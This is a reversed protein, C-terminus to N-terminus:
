AFKKYAYGAWSVLLLTLYIGAHSPEHALGGKWLLFWVPYAVVVIACAAAQGYMSASVEHEDLLGHALWAIVAIAAIFGVALWIAAGPALSGRLFPPVLGDGLVVNGLTALLGCGVFAAFGRRYERRRRRDSAQTEVTKPIGMM